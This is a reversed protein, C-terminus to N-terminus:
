DLEFPAWRLTYGASRLYQEVISEAQQREAKTMRKSTPYIWRLKNTPLLTLANWNKRHHMMEQVFDRGGIRVYLSAIDEQVDVDEFVIQGDYMSGLQERDLKIILQDTESFKLESCKANRRATRAKKLIEWISMSAYERWPEYLEGPGAAPLSGDPVELLFRCIMQIALANDKQVTKCCAFYVKSNTSDYMVPLCQGQPYTDVTWFLKLFELDPQNTLFCPCIVRQKVALLSKAKKSLQALYDDVLPFSLSPADIFDFLVGVPRPLGDTLICTVRLQCCTEGVRQNIQITFGEEEFFQRLQKLRQESACPASRLPFFARQDKYEAADLKLALKLDSLPQLFWYITLSLLTFTVVAWGCVVMTISWSQPEFLTLVPLSGFTVLLLAFTFNLSARDIRRMLHKLVFVGKRNKLM